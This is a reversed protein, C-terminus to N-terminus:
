GFYRIRRLGAHDEYREIEMRLVSSADEDENRGVEQEILNARLAEMAVSYGPKLLRPWLSRLFRNIQFEGASLRLLWAELRVVFGETLVGLVGSRGIAPSRLGLDLRGGNSTM